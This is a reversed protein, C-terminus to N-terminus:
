GAHRGARFPASLRATTNEITDGEVRLSMALRERISSRSPCCQPSNCYAQEFVAGREALRNLNPTYAGPEGMCGLARGDLGEARVFVINREM